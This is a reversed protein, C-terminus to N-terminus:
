PLAGFRLGWGHLIGGLADSRNSYTDDTVHLRWSGARDIGRLSHLVGDPRYTKYVHSNFSSAPNRSSALDSYVTPNLEYRKGVSLNSLRYFSQGSTIQDQTSRSAGVTGSYSLQDGSFVLSVPATVTGENVLAPTSSPRIDISATGADFSVLQLSVTSLTVTGTCSPDGYCVPGGFQQDESLNLVFLTTREGDVTAPLTVDFDYATQLPLGSVFVPDTLGAQLDAPFDGPWVLTRISPTPNGTVLDELDGIDGINNPILNLIDASTDVGAPNGSGGGGGCGVLALAVLVHFVLVRGTVITNLLKCGNLNSM